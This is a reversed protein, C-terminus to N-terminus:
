GTPRSGRHLFHPNDLHRPEFRTYSGGAPFGHRCPTRDGCYSRPGYGFRRPVFRNEGSGFGYLHHNPVHSFHSLARSSTHPSARSYSRPLVHSYSHHMFDIFEDHYSNRAYDLHRKEIRKHRFCFEDLRGACDCFMYIFDEERPKPTEKRV